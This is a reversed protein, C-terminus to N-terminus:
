ELPPLPLPPVRSRGDGGRTLPWPAGILVCASPRRLMAEAVASADIRYAADAVRGKLEDVAMGRDRDAASSANCM